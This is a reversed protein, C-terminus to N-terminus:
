AFTKSVSRGVPPRKRGFGYAGSCIPAARRCSIQQANSIADLQELQARSAARTSPPSPFGNAAEHKRRGAFYQRGPIWRPMMMWVDPTQYNAGNLADFAEVIEFGAGYVSQVRRRRSVERAGDAERRFPRREEAADAAINCCSPRAQADLSAWGGHYGRNRGRITADPLSSPPLRM